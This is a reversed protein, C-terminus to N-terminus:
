AALDDAIITPVSTIDDLEVIDRTEDMDGILKETRDYASYLDRTPPPATVGLFQFNRNHNLNHLMGCWKHARNEIATSKLLDFSIGDLVHIVGNGWSVPFEHETRHRGRLRKPPLQDRYPQEELPERVRSILAAEDIRQRTENKEHRLIFEAVLEQFRAEPHPHIGGRIASWQFCSEPGAVTTKRVADIDPSKPLQFSHFESLARQRPPELFRLEDDIRAMIERVMTKYGQGDFDGFFKSLRGFKRNVSLYAQRDDPVMMLLRINVLEGASKSRRYRLITYNYAKM